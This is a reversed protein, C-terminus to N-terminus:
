IMVNAKTYPLASSTKLSKSSTIADVATIEEVAVIHARDAITPHITSNARHLWRIQVTSNVMWSPTRARMQLMKQRSSLLQNDNTLVNAHHHSYYSVTGLLSALLSTERQVPLYQLPLFINRDQVLSLYTTPEALVLIMRNLEDTLLTCHFM